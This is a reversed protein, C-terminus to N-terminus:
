ARPRQSRRRGRCWACSGARCLCRPDPRRCTPDAVFPAGPDTEAQEVLRELRDVHHEAHDILARVDLGDPVPDALDWGETLDAPPDVIRVGAAVELLADGIQDAAKRGSDDHDPWICVYRGKVASWDVLGAASAGGPWTIVVFGPLSEAAADATKEGEVVLVPDAPRAALHDLGYLPRPAAPHRWHWGTKGNLTGWCRPIIQKRGDAPDFRAVYFLVRGDTRYTWIRTPKGHDRHTFAPDAAGEPPPVIPRWDDAQGPKTRPAATTDVGNGILSRKQLEAQVDAQSCGAHCRWLLRGDKESLSLSAHKDEHAPCRCSWSGNIRRAKPDLARAIREDTLNM